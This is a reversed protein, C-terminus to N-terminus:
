RGEATSELWHLSFLQEPDCWCARPRFGCARALTRFGDITYKQSNETHISEGEAFHFRQGDFSVDQATRSLLHMEIRQRLPHYFAYHQFAEILFDCGLERNARVLLNRNFAATVGAADNYAAHLVAPDKVLDVGILLGGGRLLRAAECLFRAALQPTFNGITSGPFFGVRRGAGAWRLPLTGPETFDAILAEVDLGPYSGRLEACAATLHQGSIDVAIFREPAELADLLLRAKLLSGAGFEVVEARPGILGAMEGIHRRFISLETRTLYYEPLDCIRDFLRSGEADYFYKPAISRPQEGLCCRLDHGFESDVVLSPTSGTVSPSQIASMM